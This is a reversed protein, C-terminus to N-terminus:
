AKNSLMNVQVALRKYPVREYHDIAQGDPVDWPSLQFSNGWPHYESALQKAQNHKSLVGSYCAVYWEYQDIGTFAKHTSQCYAKPLMGVCYIMTSTATRKGEQYARTSPDLKTTSRYRAAPYKVDGIIVTCPEVGHIHPLGKLWNAVDIATTEIDTM